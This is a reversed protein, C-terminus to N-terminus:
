LQSGYNALLAALDALDVDGDGDLDGDQCGAGGPTAYNALLAALDALDVDGDGDLDGTLSPITINLVVPAHDSAQTTAYLDGSSRLGGDHSSIYVFGAANLEDQNIFQDADLDFATFLADSALFYDYRRSLSTRTSYTNGLFTPYQAGYLSEVRVDNLHTPLGNSGGLLLSDIVDSEFDHQNLDGGLLFYLPFFERTGNGDVDIGFAYDISIRNAVANAENRRVNPDTGTQGAKFHSNYLVLYHPTCPVQLILRLLPRPGPTGFEDLRLIALDGRVFYANSFFGDTTPGKRVQYGPLYDDRFAELNALSTTEQLLVIDPMLSTNPGPGDLDLSTLLNGSAERAAPTDAIGQYTNFTVLRLEVDAPVPASILLVTALIPLYAHRM